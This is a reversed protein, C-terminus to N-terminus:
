KELVPPEIVLNANYDFFTTTITLIFVLKDLRMRTVVETKYPLGDAVGVWVKTQMRVGIEGADSYSYVFVSMKSGVFVEQGALRVEANKAKALREILGEHRRMAFERDMRQSDVQKKQWIGGPPKGYGAGEFLIAEGKDGGKATEIIAHYKDPAVYDANTIFGLEVRGGVGSGYSVNVEKLRYSKANNQAKLATLLAERPNPGPKSQAILDGNCTVAVFTLCFLLRFIKSTIKLGM